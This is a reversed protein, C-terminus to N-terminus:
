ETRADIYAQVYDIISNDAWREIRYIAESIRCIDQNRGDEAIQHIAAIFDETQDYNHKKMKDKEMGRIAHEWGMIECNEIKM